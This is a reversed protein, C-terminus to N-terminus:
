GLRVTIGTNPEPVHIPPNVGKTERLAALVVMPDLNRGILAESEPRAWTVAKARYVVLARGASMARLALARIYYMNFQGEALREPANYPVKAMTYGGGGPRRRPAMAVFCGALSAALSEDSGSEASQKLLAPWRLRGEETLLDSLYGGGSRADLAIEELMFQRTEADLNEYHLGM